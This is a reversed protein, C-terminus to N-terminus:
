RVKSDYLQKTQETTINNVIHKFDISLLNSIVTDASVVGKQYLRLVMNFYEVSNRYWPDDLYIKINKSNNM